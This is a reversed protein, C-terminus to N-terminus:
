GLDNQFSNMQLCLVCKGSIDVNAVEFANGKQLLVIESFPFLTKKEEEKLAPMSWKTQYLQMLPQPIKEANANLQIGKSSPVSFNTWQAKNLPRCIDRIISM